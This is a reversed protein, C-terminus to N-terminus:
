FDTQEQFVMGLLFGGREFFILVFGLGEPQSLLFSAPHSGRKM